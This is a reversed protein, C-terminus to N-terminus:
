YVQYKGKGIGRFRLGSIIQIEEIIKYFYTKDFLYFSSMYLLIGFLILIIVLSLGISINLKNLIFILMQLGLAMIFSCIIPSKILYVIRRIQINLVKSVLHIQVISYLYENFIRIILFIVIGYKAAIPYFIISYIVNVFLSKPYIDPRNNIKFVERQIGFIRSVGLGLVLVAFVTSLGEWRDSFFFPIAIHALISIGIIVPLNIIMLRKYIGLLAEVLKDKDNQLRSLLPFGINGSPGDLLNFIMLTFRKGLSYIGLMTSGGFYGLIIIDLSSYFVEQIRQLVIWKSFSFLKKFLRFSFMFNPHWKAIIWYFISAMVSRSIAGTVLAWVGYGKYAMPLTVILSIAIPFFGGFFLKRFEMRKVLLTQPIIGISSILIQFSLIPLVIKLIPENYVMSIIPTMFIVVCQFCIGLLMNAWFSTNLLLDDVEKEKVIYDDFGFGSLVNVFGIVTSALAIIGFESPLVFKAIVITIFPAFIKPLVFGASAWKVSKLAKIKLDTM